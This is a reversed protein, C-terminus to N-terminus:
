FAAPVDTLVATGPVVPLLVADPFLEADPLLVAPPLLEADLPLVPEDAPGVAEEAATMVGSVAAIVADDEAPPATITSTGPEMDALEDLVLTLM